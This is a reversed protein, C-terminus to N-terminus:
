HLDFDVGLQSLGLEVHNIIVVNPDTIRGLHTHAPKMLDVIQIIQTVQTETLVVVSAIDFTFRASSLSPCLSWDVGLESVGLEMCTFIPEVCSVEVGVFFRIANEIGVCTGKQKYLPVLISVLRRQDIDALDVFSFPNGLDCLMAALFPQAAVDPDLIDPFRDIDFLLRDTVDQLSLIFNHLDGTVDEDQNIRPIFQWLDWVRGAPTDPKFSVFVAFNTPAQVANGAVDEADTM